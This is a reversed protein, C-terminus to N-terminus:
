LWFLSSRGAGALREAHDPGHVAHPGVEAESGECRLGWFIVLRLHGPFKLSKVLGITEM